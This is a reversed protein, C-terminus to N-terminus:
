LGFLVLQKDHKPFFYLVITVKVRVIDDLIGVFVLMMPENGSIHTPRNMKMHLQQTPVANSCAHSSVDYIRLM